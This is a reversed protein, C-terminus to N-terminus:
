RPKGPGFMSQTEQIDDPFYPNNRIKRLHDDLVVQLLSRNRHGDPADVWKKMSMVFTHHEEILTQLSKELMAVRYEIRSQPIM